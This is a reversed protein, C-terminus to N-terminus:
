CVLSIVLGAIDNHYSNILWHIIRKRHFEDRYRNIVVYIVQSFLSKPLTQGFIGDYIYTHVTVLSKYCM